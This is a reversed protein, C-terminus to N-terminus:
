SDINLFKESEEGSASGEGVSSPSVGAPVRTVRGGRLAEIRPPKNRAKGGCNKVM